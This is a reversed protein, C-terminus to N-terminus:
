EIRATAAVEPNVTVYRALNVGKNVEVQYSESIGAATVIALCSAGCARIEEAYIIGFLHIMVTAEGKPAERYMQRLLQGLRTVTM